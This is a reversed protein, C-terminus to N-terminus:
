ILPLKAVQKLPHYAGDTSFVPTVGAQKFGLYLEDIHDEIHIYLSNPPDQHYYRAFNPM